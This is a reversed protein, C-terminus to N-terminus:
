SHKLHSFRFSFKSNRITHLFKKLTVKRIVSARTDHVSVRTGHASVRACPPQSTFLRTLFGHSHQREFTLHQLADDEDRRPLVSVTAKYCYTSSRERRM